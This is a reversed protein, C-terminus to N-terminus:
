IKIVQLKVKIVISSRTIFRYKMTINGQIVSCLSCIHRHKMIANNRQIDNTGLNNPAFLLYTIFNPYNQLKM